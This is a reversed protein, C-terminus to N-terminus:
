CATQSKIKDFIYNQKKKKLLKSWEIELITSM